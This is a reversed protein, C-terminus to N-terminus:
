EVVQVKLRGGCKCRYLSPKKIVKSSRIREQTNGCKECVILYKAPPKEGPLEVGLADPSNTRKINYGYEKNMQGAYKKWNGTHNYGEPATHLVEHALVEKISGISSESLAKSIEIIYHMGEISKGRSAKIRKCCGFRSKARQNVVVDENIQSSLPIGLAKAQTIVEDLLKNLEKQPRIM